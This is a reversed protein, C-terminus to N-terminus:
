FNTELVLCGRFINKRSFFVPTNPLTVTIMTQRGNATSCKKDPLASRNRM